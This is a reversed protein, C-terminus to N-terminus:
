WAWGLSLDGTPTFGKFAIGLKANSVNQDAFMHNYRAGFGLSLTFGKSWVWTYGAILSPNINWTKLFSNDMKIQTYSFLFSPELYWSDTFSDGTLFIKTSLGGGGGTISMSDLISFFTGSGHFGLAVTNNLGLYYSLGLSGFFVTTGNTSIQMTKKKVVVAPEETLSQVSFTSMVAAILLANKLRM